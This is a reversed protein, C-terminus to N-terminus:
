CRDIVRLTLTVPAAVWGQRSLYDLTIGEGSGVQLTSIVVNFGLPSAYSPWWQCYGLAPDPPNQWFALLLRLQSMPMALGGEGRWREIVVGDRLTGRWLTHVQGALTKSSSWIPPQLVDQDLGSWEDPAQAYDLAGLTPHRLRGLGPAAEAPPLISLSLTESAPSGAGIVFQSSASLVPM